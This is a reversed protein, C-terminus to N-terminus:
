TQDRRYEMGSSVYLKLTSGASDSICDISSHSVPDVYFSEKKGAEIIIGNTATTGTTGSDNFRIYIADGKAELVIYCTGEPADAGMDSVWTFDVASVGVTKTTVKQKGADTPPLVHQWNSESM